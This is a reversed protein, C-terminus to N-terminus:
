LVMIIKKKQTSVYIQNWKLERKSKGRYRGGYGERRRSQDCEKNEPDVPDKWIQHPFRRLSRFFSRM